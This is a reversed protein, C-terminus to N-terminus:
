KNIKFGSTFPVDRARNYKTTGFIIEQLTKVVIGHTVVLIKLNISFYNYCETIRNIFQDWIENNPINGYILTDKDFNNNKHIHCVYESLRCDIYIPKSQTNLLNATQKCRLYPLTIIIDYEFNIYEIKNIQKIDSDIHNYSKQQAHRIFM